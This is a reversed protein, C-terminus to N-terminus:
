KGRVGEECLLPNMTRGLIADVLDPASAARYAEPGLSCDFCRVASTFALCLRELQVTETGRRRDHALSFVESQPPLPSGGFLVARLREAASWSSLAHVEIGRAHETVRPFLLAGPRVQGRMPTGLVACLQAPALGVSSDARPSYSPTVENLALREDYGAQRVAAGFAPFLHLTDDRITVVTPMGRVWPVSGEVDVVVRDNSVFAGDAQHLLLHILLSTKGAGKPGAIVIGHGGLAVAAAHLVFSEDARVRSMAFERVVRMLAIRRSPHHRGTLIHVRTSDHTVFYFVESDPDFVVRDAEGPTTCSASVTLLRSCQPETANKQSPEGAPRWLPLRALRGDFTFCGVPECDSRPGRQMTDRYKRDDVVLTVHCDAVATPEVTFAPTLFEELWVLPLPDASEVRVTLGKYAFTRSASM